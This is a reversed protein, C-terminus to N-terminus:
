VMRQAIYMLQHLAEKPLASIDDYFETGNVYRKGDICYPTNFIMNFIIKIEHGNCRNAAFTEMIENYINTLQEDDHNVLKM